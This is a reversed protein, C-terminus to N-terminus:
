TLIQHSDIHIVGKQNIREIIDTLILFYENQHENLYREKQTWARGLDGIYGTITARHKMLEQALKVLEEVEERHKAFGGKARVAKIPRSLIRYRWRERDGSGNVRIWSVLKPRYLESTGDDRLWVIRVRGTTPPQSYYLLRDVWFLLKDLKKVFFLMTSLRQRSLKELERESALMSSEFKSLDDDLLEVVSENLM